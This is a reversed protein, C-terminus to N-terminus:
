SMLIGHRDALALEGGGHERSGMDALPLPDGGEDGIRSSLRRWVREGLGTDTRHSLDPPLASRLELRELDLCRPEGARERGQGIHAHVLHQHLFDQAGPRVGSVHEVMTRVTQDHTGNQVTLRTM